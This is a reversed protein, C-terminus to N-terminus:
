SNCQTCHPCTCYKKIQAKQEKEKLEKALAAVKGKWEMEKEAEAKTLYINEVQPRQKMAGEPPLEVNDLNEDVRKTETQVEWDILAALYGTWVFFDDRTEADEQRERAERLTLQPM